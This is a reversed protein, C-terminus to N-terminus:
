RSSTARVIQHRIANLIKRTRFNMSRHIKRQQLVTAAGEMHNVYAGTHEAEFTQTVILSCM